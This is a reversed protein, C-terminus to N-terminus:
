CAIEWSDSMLDDPIRQPGSDRRERRNKKAHNRAWRELAPLIEEIGYDDWQMLLVHPARPRCSSLMLRTLPLGSPNEAQNRRREFETPSLERVPALRALPPGSQIELLKLWRPDKKGRFRLIETHLRSTQEEPGRGVLASFDWEEARLAAALSNPKMGASKPAVPFADRRSKRKLREASAAGTM